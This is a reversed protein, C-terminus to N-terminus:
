PLPGPPPGGGKNKAWDSARLAGESIEPDPHNGGGRIKLDPGGVSRYLTDYPLDWGQANKM